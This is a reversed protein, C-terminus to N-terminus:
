NRIYQLKFAARRRAQRYPSNQALRTSCVRVFFTFKPVNEGRYFNPLTPSIDM